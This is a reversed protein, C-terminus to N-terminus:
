NNPILYFSKPFFSGIVCFFIGSSYCDTTVSVMDKVFTTAEKVQQTFKATLDVVADFHLDDDLVLKQFDECAHLGQNRDCKINNVKPFIRESADWYGNGRTVMTVNYGSKILLDVTDSGLFGNGGLVLVKPEIGDGATKSFTGQMTLLIIFTIPGHLRVVM